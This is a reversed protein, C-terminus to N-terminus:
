YNICVHANLNGVSIPMTVKTRLSHLGGASDTILGAEFRTKEAKTVQSHHADKQLLERVLERNVGLDAM